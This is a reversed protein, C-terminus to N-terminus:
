GAAGALIERLTAAIRTNAPADLVTVRLLSETDQGQSGCDRVYVGRTRAADAVARASVGSSRTSALVFNTVSPFVRLGPIAALEGSMGARLERTRAAMARYYGQDRLAEIAAVQALLGVSWPPILPELTRAVDPHAVAYGARVGSLAWFKSLSKLVILRPETQVLSEVSVDDEAFDSYTEDVILWGFRPLGDIVARIFDRSVPRGTPSNPNVLIAIDAGALAKLYEDLPVEFGGDETLPCRACRVGAVVEFWHRYEGYMPDLVLPRDGPRALRPLIAYALASTGGGLLLSAGPLGRTEAITRRLGDAHTPPSARLAWALHEQVAMVAVPSPDYWADLVDAPVISGLRDLRSFDHGLADFAAGGHHAHPPPPALPNM